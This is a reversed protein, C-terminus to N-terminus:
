NLNTIFLPNRSAKLLLKFSYGTQNSLSKFSNFLEEGTIKDKENDLVISKCEQAIEAPTMKASELIALRYAASESLNLLDMIKIKQQKTKQICIYM